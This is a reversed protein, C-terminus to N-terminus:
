EKVYPIAIVVTTGVGEKSTINLTGNHMEVIENAVALGIGSGRKTLNARFFKTKIKPLNEESVGCGMDNVIVEIRGNRTIAEVTVCGGRESYKVANDLINIFVQRIRNKDGNVFPLNDKPETYVLNIGEKKAKQSYMMVADGLEALIDVLSFSLSFHGTQMRSFDLLEEVMDKLREAEDMIIKIGRASSPSLETDYNITEAWGKIATLPTRLEHSVSSIFENKMDDATKLADAMRNLADGLQSIEDQSTMTIKESFDGMAFKSAIRNIELIPRVISKIFYFGTLVLMLFIGLCIFSIITAMSIINQDVQSLSSVVRLVSYESSYESIDMSVAIINEGTSLKGNWNGNGNEMLSEYDPMVTDTQPTFGSSTVVIEGNYDIAMIEMKDKDSFSEITNQLETSFNIDSSDSYKQLVTATSVLKTNLYQRANSYFYVKVAYILIIDAILLFLFLLGLHNVVWRKTISKNAFKNKNNHKM